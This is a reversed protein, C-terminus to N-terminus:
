GVGSVSPKSQWESVILYFNFGNWGHEAWLVGKWVRLLWHTMQEATGNITSTGTSVRDTAGDAHHIGLQKVFATAYTESSPATSKCFLNGNTQILESLVGRTPSDPALKFLLNFRTTVPTTKGIRLWCGQSHLHHPCSSNCLIYPTGASLPRHWFLTYSPAAEPRAWRGLM